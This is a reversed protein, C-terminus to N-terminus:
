RLLSLYPSFLDSGGLCAVVTTRALLLAVFCSRTLKTSLVVKIALVFINGRWLVNNSQSFSLALVSLYDSLISAHHLELVTYIAHGVDQGVKNSFKTRPSLINLASNWGASGELVGRVHSRGLVGNM